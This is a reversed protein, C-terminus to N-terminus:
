EDQNEQEYEAVQESIVFAEDLEVPLEAAIEKASMGGYEYYDDVGDEYIGAFAMGGEHYM